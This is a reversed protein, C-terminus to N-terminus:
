SSCIGKLLSYFYFEFDKWFFMRLRFSAASLNVTKKDEIIIVGIDFLM